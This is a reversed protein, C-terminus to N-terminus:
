FGRSAQMESGGSNHRKQYDHPPTQSEMMPALAHTCMHAPRAPCFDKEDSQVVDTNALEKWTCALFNADIHVLLVSPLSVGM